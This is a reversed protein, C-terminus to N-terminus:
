FFVFVCVCVCVRSEQFDKLINRRKKEVVIMSKNSFNKKVFPILTQGDVFMQPSPTHLEKINNEKSIGFEEVKFFFVSVCVCM